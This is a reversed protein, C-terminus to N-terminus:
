KLASSGINTIGKKTFADKLEGLATEAILGGYRRADDDSMSGNHSINVEIHPSFETLTSGAHAAPLLDRSTPLLSFGGFLNDFKSTDITTGLRESLIQAFDVLKYLGEERKEDLVLEGDKLIAMVEDKKLTSDGVVGGTHYTGYSEYLKANDIWWVGDSDKWVKQGSLDAIYKAMKENAKELEARESPSAGSWKASNNKMAKTIFDVAEWKGISYLPDTEGDLYWAGDKSTVDQEYISSLQSALTKNASSLRSQESDSATFWQLSNNRMQNIIARPDGYNGSAGLDVSDSTAGAALKNTAEIYSGYEQVAKSALEWAAVIESEISSGAEYNWDIIDDYLNDWDDNIRDIALQYIKETSSISDELIAIEKDKEEEYSDAMEDLMEQQKDVSYDTQYDSLDTQLEALEQELAAKEAQAERSDDLSLKNIKGQLKAIEAVKKAVEKNYDNEKKTEDLAEKKLDIIERYKDKQEELAEIEQNVEYEVLEMTLDLIKDLADQMDEYGKNSEDTGLKISEVANNALSRLRNINELAQAYQSDDLDLLALNSYVLSWNADSAQETATILRNLEKINNESLAYRIKEVYSMATDVALQKTRAAIVAEIREKNISLMGNEDKLYNMYEAGYEAIAKLTDVSLAGTEAYEGAAEKLTTYVDQMASVFDVAETVAENLLEVINDKGENIADALDLWTESGKQNEENLGTIDDILEETDKRLANTAEQVNEYEGASEAELENLHELNTILLRNTDANYEIEFGLAQLEPIANKITTDRLDNLEHLAQQREKYAEILDKQIGVKELATDANELDRELKAQKVEADRLKQLAETYREVSAIYEEVEKEKDKDGSKDKGYDPNFQELPKNRLAQLVAIQGDIEAIKSTYDSIDLELNSIFEDLTFEKAEYSYDSGKFTGEHLTITIDGNNTGGAGGGQIDSSGQVKGGAVGAMAKAAEHCQKAFASVSLKSNHMNNYIAQAASYAAEDFNGDVDTCVEAAIRNFEDVNGAMAATALKFATAEDIGQDILAQTMVNGCDIRYAAVDASIQGEGEGVQKALELQAEAASKKAELVAKDAELQTIQADIAGKLEATKGNLFNTVVDANLKIQGNGASTAYQLIEPYTKAFERAADASVIFGNKVAEQISSLGQMKQSYNDFVRGLDDWTEIPNTSLTDKLENIEAKLQDFSMSGNEKVIKYAIELEEMTLSSAMDDFEDSLLSKVHDIKGQVGEIDFALKVYKITDDTLNSSSIIDNIKDVYDQASIKGEDLSKEIDLIKYFASKASDDMDYIPNIVYDKIYQQVEEATDLGLSSFDISKMMRSAIDQGNSDLDQYMFDTQLWASVVPNLQKWKSAIRNNFDEIQKELGADFNNLQSQAVALADQMEKSNILGEWDAIPGSKWNEVEYQKFLEQWKEQSGIMEQLYHVMTTEAMSIDADFVKTWNDGYTERWGQEYEDSYIRTFEDYAQQYNDIKAQIAEKEKKGAKQEDKISKEYGKVSDTINKMVDPMTDAIEQAAAVRQAEVCAYLSETLTDVNGSLNLIANGNSDYGRVLDPFMEGLRNNLSVFESFEESTLSINKGYKDVGQALEAYKPIIDDAEDRLSKFKNSASEITNSLSEWESNLEEIDKSSGSFLAIGAVVASIAALVLGIVPISAQMATNASVVGAAYSKWAVIANPIINIITSIATKIGNFFTIIKQVAAIGLLTAKYAILGGKSILLVASLTLLVTKLGGLADVVRLVGNILEMFGTGMDIVLKVIDSGILNQSLTEFTAKMINIKGQVSELVKENEELASGASNASTKIAEEAVSFNELLASVVNSNRKGGVMELINAQSVDSLEGWVVSLEKLIQYTSKFTNEDLQIDVKNGTLALLEERLESISNAMGDTSEGAEEADTKAARLYMSVTKLTTGVKDPDQVITNAAAALAISEDLTNNASHLAAASRLLADGVGKSSIAFNNGVENFRDVISMVQEAPIAFAQMTAIISESATGIDEIGDGVNKYVIAADALKEADEIGYGLRAFDATASVTDSLAAGLEKARHTANVLFKEYTADTENTVKKLETMATDLEIVNTVMQRVARYAAMIVRTISFWTGFKASLAGLRSGWTQTAEGAAKITNSNTTFSSSLSSLKQQFQEATIQGNKFQLTWQQLSAIDSQIAAYSTSTKGNKSATWKNEANQMQTLLTYSKKLLSQRKIEEANDAKIASAKASAASAADRTKAALDAMSAAATSASSATASTSTVHGLGGLSKSIEAVQTRFNAIAATDLELGVKIKPPNSNLQSVLNSIDKQMQDYSLGVDVGVSLLFDAM